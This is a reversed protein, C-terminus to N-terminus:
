FAIPGLDDVTEDGFDQWKSLEPTEALNTNTWVLDQVRGPTFMSQQGTSLDKVVFKADGGYKGNWRLFMFGANKDDAM